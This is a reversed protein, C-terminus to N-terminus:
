KKAPGADPSTGSTEASKLVALAAARLEPSALDFLRILEEAETSLEGGQTPPKEKEGEGTQLYEVSTELEKAVKALREYSPKSTKWRAIIGNGIGCRRELEAVTIGKAKCLEKIRQVMFGGGESIKKFIDFVSNVILAFSLIIFSMLAAFFWARM